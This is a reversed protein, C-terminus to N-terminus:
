IKLGEFTNKNPPQATPVRKKQLVTLWEGHIDKSLDYPTRAVNNKLIPLLPAGQPQEKPSSESQPEQAMPAPLCLSEDSCNRSVHSHCRVSQAFLICFKTNLRTGTTM